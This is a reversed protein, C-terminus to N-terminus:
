LLYWKAGDTIVVLTAYQAAISRTATGDITQGSQGVIKITNGSGDTKKIRMVRDFFTDAQPLTFTLTGATADALILDHAVSQSSTARLVDFATNNMQKAHSTLISSLAQRLAPDMDVPLPALLPLRQM